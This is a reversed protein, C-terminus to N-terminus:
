AELRGVGVKPVGPNSQADKVRANNVNGVTITAVSSPKNLIGELRLSPLRARPAVRASVINRTTSGAAAGDM